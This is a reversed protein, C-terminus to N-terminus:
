LVVSFQLLADVLPRVTATPRTWHAGVTLPQGDCASLIGSASAANVLASGLLMSSSTSPLGPFLERRRYVIMDVSRRGPTAATLRALFADDTSPLNEGRTVNLTVRGAGLKDTGAKALDIIADLSPKESLARLDFHDSNYVVDELSLPAGGLLWSLALATVAGAISVPQKFPHHQMSGRLDLGRLAVSRLEQSAAGDGEAISLWGFQRDAIPDVSSMLALMAPVPCEWCRHYPDPNADELLLVDRVADFGIVVANNGGSGGNWIAELRSLNVASFNCVLVVRRAPAPTSGGFCVALQDRFAKEKDPSDYPQAVAHARRELQHECYYQTILELGYLPIHESAVFSMHLGCNFLMREITTTLRLPDEQVPLQWATAGGQAHGMAEAAGAAEPIQRQPLLLYNLGRAIPILSYNKKSYAFPIPAATPPLRYRATADLVKDSKPSLGKLSASIEASDTVVIFGYGMCANYLQTANAYWIKRFKKVSVDAMQVVKDVASYGVVLAFHSPDQGADLMRVNQAVEVNFGMLVATTPHAVLKTLTAFFTDEDMNAAGDEANDRRYMTTLTLHLKEATAGHKRKLFERYWAFAVLLSDKTATNVITGIPLQLTVAIDTVPIGRLAEVATAPDETLIALRVVNHLLALGLLHPAISIDLAISLMGRGQRGDLLSVPFKPTMAEGSSIPPTINDAVVNRTASSAPSSTPTLFGGATHDADRFVRVFGRARKSYGDRQCCAQHLTQITVSHMECAFVGAPTMHVMALVVQHLAANYEKLIAFHGQNKALWQKPEEAAASAGGGTGTAASSPKTAAPAGAPSSSEEDEDLEAKAQRAEAEQIIFPDLNFIHVSHSNDSTHESLEKRFALLTQIPPRQGTFLKRPGGGNSAPKSPSPRDDNFSGSLQADEDEEIVSTDCTAVECRVSQGGLEDPSSGKIFEDINDFLEALTVSPFAVYHLAMGNKKLIAEMPVPRDCVFSLAMSACALWTCKVGNARPLTNWPGSHALPDILKSRKQKMAAATHRQQQKSKADHTSAVTEDLMPTIHAHSAPHAGPYPSGHSHQVDIDPPAGGGGAGNRPSLASMSMAGPDQSQGEDLVVARPRQKREGRPPQPSLGGAPVDSM